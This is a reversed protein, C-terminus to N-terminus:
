RQSLGHGQKIFEMRNDFPDATYFREVGPISRDWSVELGSSELRQALGALDAVVFAPHAKRQPRFESDVGVHVVCTGLRFWCGGRLKLDEPKEDESMGLIGVFFSRAESERGAPMALQVHDLIM